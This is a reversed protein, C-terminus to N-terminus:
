GIITIADFFRKSNKIIMVDLLRMGYDYPLM